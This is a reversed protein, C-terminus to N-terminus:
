EYDGMKLLRDYHDKHNINFFIKEPEGFLSIEEETFPCIKAESYFSRVKREGSALFKEILPFCRRHYIACLPEFYGGIYPVLADCDGASQLMYEFLAGPVLPNDIPLFIYYDAQINKMVAHMGSLPGAGDIEDFVVPLDYEGYQCAERCSVVVRSTVEKLTDIAIQIFQRNSKELLAKDMGMRTSKGGALVVGVINENM